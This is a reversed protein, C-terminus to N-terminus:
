NVLLDVALIQIIQGQVGLSLEGIFGPDLSSTDVFLVEGNESLVQVDMDGLDFEAEPGDDIKMTGSVADVRLFHEHFRGRFTNRSSSLGPRLGSIEDLEWPLTTEGLHVPFLIPDIGDRLEEMFSLKNVEGYIEELSMSSSIRFVKDYLAPPYLDDTTRGALYEQDYAYYFVEPKMQLFRTRGGVDINCSFQDEFLEMTFPGAFHPKSKTSPLAVMAAMVGAAVISLVGGGLLVKKKKAAQDTEGEENEELEENENEEAM